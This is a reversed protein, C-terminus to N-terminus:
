FDNPPSLSMLPCIFYSCLSCVNQEGLECICVHEESPSRGDAVRRGGGPPVPSTHSTAGGSSLDMMSNAAESGSQLWVNASSERCYPCV